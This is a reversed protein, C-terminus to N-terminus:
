RATGFGQTGKGEGQSPRGRRERQQEQRLNLATIRCHHPKPPVMPVSRAQFVKPPTKQKSRVLVRGVGKESGVKSGRGEKQGENLEKIYIQVEKLEEESEEIITPIQLQDKTEEENEREQNEKNPRTSEREETEQQVVHISDGEEDRIVGGVEMEKDGEEDGEGVVDKMVDIARERRELVHQAELDQKHEENNILMNKMEEEAAEEETEGMTDVGEVERKTEERARREGEKDIVKQQVRISEGEKTEIVEEMVKREETEGERDKRDGSEMMDDRALVSMIEYIDEEGVEGEEGAIWEEEEIMGKQESAGFDEGETEELEKLVEREETEIRTVEGEQKNFEGRNRDEREEMEEEVNEKKGESDREASNEPQEMAGGASVVESRENLINKPEEACSVIRCASLLHEQSDEKEAESVTDGNYGESIVGEGCHSKLDEKDRLQLHVGTVEEEATTQLSAEECDTSSSASALGREIDGPTEEEKMMSTEVSHCTVVTSETCTNTLTDAHDKEQNDPDQRTDELLDIAELRNEEEAKSHRLVEELPYCCDPSDIDLQEPPMRAESSQSLGIGISRDDSANDLQQSPKAPLSLGNEMDPQPGSWTLRNFVLSSPLSKCFMDDNDEEDERNYDADEDDNDEEESSSCRAPLFPRSIYPLSMSKNAREYQDFSLPRHTPTQTQRLTHTETQCGTQIQTQTDVPPQTVSDPKDYSIGPSRQELEDEYEDEAHHPEVSFAQFMKTSASSDMLDLFGFTDQFDLPCDQVQADDEEMTTPYPVDTAVAENRVGNRADLATQVSGKIEMHEGEEDEEEDNEHNVKDEGGGEGEEGREELPKSVCDGNLEEEKGRDEKGEVKDDMDRREESVEQDRRKVGDTEDEGVVAVRIHREGEGGEQRVGEGGEGKDRSGEGGSHNRREAGGGQLVGFALGSTIHLPVTVSFPGSIHLGARRDAKSSIGPSRSPPQLADTSNGGSCHSGLRSYTGKTGGGGSVVSVSAGQGRRFTVAYGSGVDSGNTSAGGDAGGQPCPSPQALPSIVTSPARQRSGEHSYPMSSLSDMSKAPRLVTREKEKTSNKNRGRPDQLRGGLNFISKWKRSKLSGKRKDTGDIIAHYSRMAPPGDGPSINGLQLPIAPFLRKESGPFLQPVHTLIFEVVISQVRVEMFAATGNFGSAEIDKSRLLNPAWVIALNRAHMNTHSSYSAMKVLHRMLFELTRYHPAPLEKLVDKIKVLREDELQIAVAEAYKDYLQYTLLPNPLERFYAKCLSSVCHIDQLYVDKNLDPTGESDFEGRLKQTNSSVGSLRYIGDVVGHKEIFESCSRLVQPIEQCSTALHDLLHCGFVKENNGGKRRLRRM